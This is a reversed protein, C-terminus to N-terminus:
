LGIRRCWAEFAAATQWRERAAWFEPSPAAPEPLEVLPHAAWIARLWALDMMNADGRRPDRVGM